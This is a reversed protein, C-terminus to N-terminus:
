EFNDEWRKGSGVCVTTSEYEKVYEGHPRCAVVSGAAHKKWTAMIKHRSLKSFNFEFGQTPPFGQQTRWASQWCCCCVIDTNMLLPHLWRTPFPSSSLSQVCERSIALIMPTVTNFTHRDGVFPADDDSRCVCDCVMINDRASSSYM